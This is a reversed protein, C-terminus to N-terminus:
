PLWLMLIEKIVDVPQFHRAADIMLGRWTFRPADSIEVIPFYYSTSNNQLLQLLTELGHLAGLDTAADIAIRNSTVTLRYSEDENIEIKGNRTCNIQLEAEPYENTLLSARFCDQEAM